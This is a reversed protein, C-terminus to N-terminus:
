IETSPATNSKIAAHAIKSKATERCYANSTSKLSSFRMVTASPLLANRM